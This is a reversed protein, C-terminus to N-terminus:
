RETRTHWWGYTLVCRCLIRVCVLKLRVLQHQECMIILHSAASTWQCAATDARCKAAVNSNLVCACQRVRVRVRVREAHRVSHKQAWCNQDAESFHAREHSCRWVTHSTHTHTKKNLLDLELHANDEWPSLRCTDHISVSDHTEQNTCTLCKARREDRFLRQEVSKMLQTSTKLDNPKLNHHLAVYQQHPVASFNIGHFRVRQRVCRPACRYNCRFIYPQSILSKHSTSM